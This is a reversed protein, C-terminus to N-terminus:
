KEERASSSDAVPRGIMRTAPTHTPPAMKATMSAVSQMRQRQTQRNLTLCRQDGNSYTYQQQKCHEFVSLSLTNNQKITKALQHHWVMIRLTHFRERYPCRELCSVKECRSYWEQM